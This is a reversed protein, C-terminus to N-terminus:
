RLKTEVFLVHRNVRPDHKVFELKKPNKRPNKKAVYFFGTGASSLLKVLITAGKKAAAM